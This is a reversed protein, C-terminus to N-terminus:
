RAARVPARNPNGIEATGAYKWYLPCASQCATFSACGACEEPAYEKNKFHRARPSFWVDRFSEALLNGMPEPYSSCPLVDGTPSVSLLGDMAACSKNGLGRAITNYHCHPIPSYWYFILDVARAASRVSDIIAGARSYPVFLEDARPNTDAPLYLNMAFRSVGLSKLFAPMLPADPANAATVTTNTQVSIGAAQLCRIGALTSDFSGSRATLADHTPASIGEISVQATRLGAKYLSHARRTDALTGNTILNVRLGSKEAFRIMDELDRRLLPEGGTFSFFPIKAEDKFIRIIRKIEALSM